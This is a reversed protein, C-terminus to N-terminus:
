QPVQSNWWSGSPERTSQRNWLREVANGPLHRSYYVKSGNVPLKERHLRTTILSIVSEMIYYLIYIISGRRFAEINSARENSARENAARENAGRENSARENSARENSARENSARENSARENSARENSAREICARKM